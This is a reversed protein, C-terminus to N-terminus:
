VRLAMESALERCVDCTEDDVEPAFFFLCLLCCTPSVPFLFYIFAHRVVLFGSNGGGGQGGSVTRRLCWPLLFMHTFHLSLHVLM